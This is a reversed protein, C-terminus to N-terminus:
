RTSTQPDSAAPGGLISAIGERVGRWSRRLLGERVPANFMRALEDTVRSYRPPFAVVGRSTAGARLTSWLTGHVLVASTAEMEITRIPCVFLPRYRFRVGKACPTAFGMTRVPLGYGRAAIFARAGAERISQTPRRLFLLDTAVCLAFLDLRICWGAIFFSCIILPLCLAFALLPSILFAILLVALFSGRVAVLMADIVAFPSLVILADIAHFTIWVSFYAILALPILWILSSSGGLFAATQPSATTAGGDISAMTTILTPLLVGAAVLASCKAELYESADLLKRIPMPIAPSAIKKLIVALLVVSCPILFWPNAHLPLATTANMGGLANFDYWGLACLVLLPSIALGTIQAFGAAVVAARSEPAAPNLAANAIPAASAGSTCLASAICLLPLACVSFARSM